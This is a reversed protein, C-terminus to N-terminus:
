KDPPPPPEFFRTPAGPFYRQLLEPNFDHTFLDLDPPMQELYTFKINFQGNEHVLMEIAAWTSAPDEAKYADHLARSAYYVANGGLDIDDFVVGDHGQLLFVVRFVGQMPPQHAAEYYVASRANRRLLAGHIARGLETIANSKADGTQM